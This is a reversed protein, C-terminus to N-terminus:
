TVARLPDLGRLRMYKSIQVEPISQLEQKGAKISTIEAAVTLPCTDSVQPQGVSVRGVRRRGQRRRRQRVWERARHAIAISPHPRRSCYVTALTCCCLTAVTNVSNCVTRVNKRVNECQDRHSNQFRVDKCYQVYLHKQSGGNM